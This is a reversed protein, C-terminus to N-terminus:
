KTKDTLIPTEDEADTDFKDVAEYLKDQIPDLEALQLTLKDTYAKKDDEEESVAIVAKITTKYKLGLNNLTDTKAQQAKALATTGPM